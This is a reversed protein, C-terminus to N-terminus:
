RVKAASGRHLPFVGGFYGVDQGFIVVGPDKELMVEMASNLAQVMSMTRTEQKRCTSAAAPPGAAEPATRPVRENDQLNIVANM